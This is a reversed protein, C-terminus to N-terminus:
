ANARERWVMKAQFQAGQLPTWIIPSEFRFITAVGTIPHGFEFELTGNQLLLAYFDDLTQYLDRHVWVTGNMLKDPKTYRRRVKKPGTDVNTRINTDETTYSWGGENICQQLQLPWVQAM